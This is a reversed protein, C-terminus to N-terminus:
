GDSRLSTAASTWNDMYSEFDLARGWDVLNEAEDAGLEVGLAAMDMLTGRNSTHRKVEAGDAFLLESGRSSEGIDFDFSQGALSEAGASARVHTRDTLPAQPQAQAKGLKADIRAVMAEEDLRQM